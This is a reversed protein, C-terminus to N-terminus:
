ELPAEHVVDYGVGRQDREGPLQREVDDVVVLGTHPLNAGGVGLHDGGGDGLPPLDLGAVGPRPRVGAEVRGLDVPPRGGDELAPPRLSRTRQSKTRSVHRIFRNLADSRQCGTVFPSDSSRAPPPAPCPTSSSSAAPVNSPPWESAVTPTSPPPT